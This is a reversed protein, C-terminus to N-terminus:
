RVNKETQNPKSKLINSGRFISQIIFVTSPPPLPLQEAGKERTRGNGTCPCDLPAREYRSDSLNSFQRLPETELPGSM